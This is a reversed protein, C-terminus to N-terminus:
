VDAHVQGVGHESPEVAALLFVWTGWPSVMVDYVRRIVDYVRRIVDYM